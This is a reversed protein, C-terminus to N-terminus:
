MPRGVLLSMPVAQTSMADTQGLIAPPLTLMVLALASVIACLEASLVTPAMKTSAMQVAPATQYNVTQDAGARALSIM